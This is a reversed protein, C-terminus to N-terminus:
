ACRNGEGWTKYAGGSLAKFHVTTCQYNQRIEDGVQYEFSTPYGVWGAEWGQGAWWEGIAGWVPFAGTNPHWYIMGNDFESRRGAGDPNTLEHSRPCGLAGGPGGLNHIYTYEIAGVVEFSRGCYQTAQAPSAASALLTSASLALM